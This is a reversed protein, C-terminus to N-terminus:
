RIRGIRDNFEKQLLLLEDPEKNHTIVPQGIALKWERELALFDFEEENAIVAAAKMQEMGVFNLNEDYVRGAPTVQRKPVPLGARKWEDAPVPLGYKELIKITHTKTM